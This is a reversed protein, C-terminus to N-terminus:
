RISTYSVYQYKQFNIPPDIDSFVEFGNEDGNISGLSNDWSKLITIKHMLTQLVCFNSEARTKLSKTNWDTKDRAL